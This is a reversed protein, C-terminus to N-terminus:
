VGFIEIVWVNAWIVITVLMAGFLNSVQNNYSETLVKLLLDMQNM